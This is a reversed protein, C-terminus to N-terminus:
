ASRLIDEAIAKINITVGFIGTKAEVYSAPQQLVARELSRGSEPAARRV